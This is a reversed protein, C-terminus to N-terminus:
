GRIFHSPTLQGATSESVAATQLIDLSVSCVHVGHGLTIYMTLSCNRSM